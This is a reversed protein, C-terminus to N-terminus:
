SSRTVRALACVHDVLHGPADLIYFSGDGFYDHAKFGGIELSSEDFNLPVLKRGAWDTEWLTSKSNVAHTESLMSAGFVLETSALFKSMHGTHDFHAHSWIAANISAVDIGDDLLQEVIGREVPMTLKGTKVADALLPAANELDKRVGLDFMVRRGTAAHEVLFAFVPCRLVEHGTPVPCMVMGPALFVARPSSVVDYAKLSVTAESAPTGLERFSM